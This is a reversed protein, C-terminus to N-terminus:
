GVLVEETEQVEGVFGHLHFPCLFFFFAM